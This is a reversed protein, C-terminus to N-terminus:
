KFTEGSFPNAGREAAYSHHPAIVLPDGFYAGLNILEFVEVVAPSHAVLRLEGHRARATEKALMLLQVGATDFETVGALNVELAASQELAALLTHKLEEARYISLEGEIYLVSQQADQEITTTMM